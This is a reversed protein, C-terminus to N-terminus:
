YELDRRVLQFSCIQLRSDTQWRSYVASEWCCVYMTLLRSSVDVAAKRPKM